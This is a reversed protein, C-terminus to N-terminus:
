VEEEATGALVDPDGERRVVQREILRLVRASLGISRLFAIEEKQDPSVPEEPKKVEVFRAMTPEGSLSETAFLFLDPTGYRDTRAEDTHRAILQGLRRAGCVQFLANLVGANPLTRPLAVGAERWERVRVEIREVSLALWESPKGPFAQSLTRWLNPSLRAGSFVYGEMRRRRWRHLVVAEAVGRAGGEGKSDLLYLVRNGRRERGYALHSIRLPPDRDM